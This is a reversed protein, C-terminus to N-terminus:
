STVKWCAKQNGASLAIVYIHSAPVNPDMTISEGASLEFGTTLGVGSAQAIFITESNTSLAKVLIGAHGTETSDALVEASADIDTNQGFRDTVAM